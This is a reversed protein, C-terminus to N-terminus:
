SSDRFGHDPSADPSCCSPHPTSFPRPQPSAQRSTKPSADSAVSGLSYVSSSGAAPTFRSALRIPPKKVIEIAIRTATAAHEGAYGRRRLRARHLPVPPAVGAAAGDRDQISAPHPVIVLARGDTDVLAHRKRGLVKKAANYGRPGGSETTKISQSDIVATTPSAQRGAGERDALVLAHNM